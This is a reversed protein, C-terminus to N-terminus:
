FKNINNLSYLGTDHEIDKIICIIGGDNIILSSAGKSKAEAKLIPLANFMDTQYNWMDFHIFSCVSLCDSCQFLTHGSSRTLDRIHKIYQEYCM